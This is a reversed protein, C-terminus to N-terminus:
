LIVESAEFVPGDVCVRANKVGSHADVEATQCVCGLCVGVGCAMREELSVFCPLGREAAFAKVAALMPKPGCACIVGSLEEAAKMADIVTGKTGLSGDETAILVRSDREFDEQLFTKENRYGLVAVSGPVAKVLGLLPPVGIGGGVAIVPGKDTPFGNGVPGLVRVTEGPQWASFEETGTGPGTVRYVLRVVGGAADAECISIPRGLIRGGEKPYVMVFQGPVASKAIAPAALCLEFIGDSLARSTVVSAEGSWKSM